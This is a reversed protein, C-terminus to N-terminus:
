IEELIDNIGFGNMAHDVTVAPVDPDHEFMLKWNEEVAMPLIRKKDELTQLPEIDYAMIFPLHIHASFPFLDACYLLTNETDSVKVLQMFPTHGHVTLFEIEEDFKVEGDVLELVGAEHLPLFREKVFSSKDKDSPNQAWEFHEKQVIYKAHPFTPVLLDNKLSVAGGAHDFHLHTLIVDTIDEPTLDHKALSTVLSNETQNIRYIESFREKWGNGIGTDVLINRSESKLLLCRTNLTVRNRDDPPNDREWMVKPVVGFMAGGDLGITGADIAFLEYKGIRM